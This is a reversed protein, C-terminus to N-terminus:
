PGTLQVEATINQWDPLEYVRLATDVVASMEKSEWAAIRPVKFAFTGVAEEDSKQTRGWITVTGALDTIDDPSHNVLVFRVETRKKPDQLFRVGAVEIYRQLPHQSKKAQGPNEFALGSQQGSGDHRRFRNVGWYAALGIAIFALAFLVSMLWTPIRRRQRASIKAPPTARSPPAPAPPQPEAPPTVAAEEVPREEQKKGRAACDPCEDYAPPVERGCQPCIWTFM